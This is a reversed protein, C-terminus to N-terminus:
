RSWDLLEIRQTESLYFSKNPQYLRLFNQNYGVPTRGKETQSLYKLLTESASSIQIDKFAREEKTPSLPPSAKAIRVYSRARAAGKAELLGGKVLLNLERRIAKRDGEDSKSLGSSHAVDHLSIEQKKELLKLIVAEIDSSKKATM